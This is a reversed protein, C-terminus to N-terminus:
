IVVPLTQLHRCMQLSNKKDSDSNGPLFGKYDLTKGEPVQNDVLAQIDNEEELKLQDFNPPM